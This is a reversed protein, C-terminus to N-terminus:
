GGRSPLLLSVAIFLLRQKLLSPGQEFLTNSRTAARRDTM